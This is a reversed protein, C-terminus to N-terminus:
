EWLKWPAKGTNWLRELEHKDRLTDMPKWFGDHHFAMLNSEKALKELPGDEWATNDDVIYDIVQPELVFFGANIRSNESKPKEIFSKVSNDKDINLVGFRGIPQVVTITALKSHKKHFEVLKKINVNGVGDGYTLMFRENNLYKKIKKIRGGTMTNLGTDVLTVKWKESYSNHIEINGTSLDVTMDSMHNYYNTFYEKIVYGKYGLCIIFDDFGYYSYIKMIHWLIPKGGIEVMPKPIRITEEELRTGYGGALIVVKM